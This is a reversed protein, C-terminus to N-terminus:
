LNKPKPVVMCTFRSVCILEKAEDFIKIDWVHIKGGIKLPKCIAKVVGTTVSKLHNANIEIGVGIFLDQNVCYLTAVSGITEALAVSAGGHLLGFPQKVENRIPMTAIIYDAGIEIFKIQFFGGLTAQNLQNLEEVTFTKWWITKKNERVELDAQEVIPIM